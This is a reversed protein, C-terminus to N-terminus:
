DREMQIIEAPIKGIPNQWDTHLREGLLQLVLMKRVYSSATLGHIKAISELDNKLRLPLHLKFDDLAKGVFKIDTPTM